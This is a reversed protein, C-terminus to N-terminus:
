HGHDQPESSNHSHDGVIKATKSVKIGDVFYEEHNNANLTVEVDHIGEEYGSIYYYNSYLRTIKQGDIYLHAHGQGPVNNQNVNQPTFEFNNTNIYLNWGAKADKNLEISAIEPKPENAAVEYKGHEHMTTTVSSSNNESKINAINYGLIFLSLGLLLLLLALVFSIKKNM